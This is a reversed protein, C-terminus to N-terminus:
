LSLFGRTEYAHPEVPALMARNLAMFASVPGDIKNEPKEKRPYINDKADRHCVVNSIMWRMCPDGTHHLRKELVLAELEKMPASFNEVNPKIEVMTMGEAIMEGALQASQWPDFATERLAHQTADSRLDRKVENFDLTEGPTTRIYGQKAWGSFQANKSREIAREPLYGQAFLYYHRIYKPEETHEDVGDALDRWFLKSRAALDVKSALDLGIICPQGTFDSEKMAADACADWADMQMWAVDANCWINLKKTKFNNEKSASQMAEVAEMRFLDIDISSHWNPNAKIWSEETKWDDKEDLTYIIGFLQENAAGDLMKVVGDRVEYCIGSMDSGATTIAWILSQTRKSAGMVLVDWVARTPHAHLEDVLAIHINKGEQNKAERSLAKFTSNTSPQSIAHASLKMGLKQRLAPREKLMAEADGWTIRAQDTTTAASFVDAGGEGDASVGYLGVGSSMFSKGNGRPMELYARRFRRQGNSRRLWGFVTTMIFCQWLELKFLQSRKPGKVHPLQELYRCIRGARAEDFIFPFSPDNAAARALDELQRKCAARVWKCAAIRGDLVQVCYDLAKAVHPDHAPPPTKRKKPKPERAM